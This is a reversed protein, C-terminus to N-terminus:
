ILLMSGLKLLYSRADVTKSHGYYLDHVALTSLNQSASWCPPSNIRKNIKNQQMVITIALLFLLEKAPKANADDVYM